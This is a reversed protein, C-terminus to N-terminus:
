YLGLQEDLEGGGAAAIRELESQRRQQRRAPLSHFLSSPDSSAGGAQGAQKRQVGPQEEQDQAADDKPQANPPALPNSPGVQRKSTPVVQPRQQQQHQPQPQPQQQHQQHQHQHQQHQPQQQPQQPQPQQQQQHQQQQRSTSSKKEDTQDIRQRLDQLARDMAFSMRRVLGQEGKSKRRKGAGSKELKASALKASAQAEAASAGVPPVPSSMLENGGQVAGQQNQREQERLLQLRRKSEAHRAQLRRRKKEADPDVAAVAVAEASGQGASERRSGGGVGSGVGGEGGGGAGEGGGGSGSDGAGGGGSGSVSVGAGWEGSWEGSGGPTSSVPVVKSPRKGYAGIGGATVGIGENQTSDSHEWLAVGGQEDHGQKGHRHVSDGPSRGFNQEGGEVAPHPYVDGNGGMYVQADGVGGGYRMYFCLDVVAFFAKACFLLASWLSLIRLAATASLVPIIGASGEEKKSKWHAAETGGGGCACCAQSADIGDADAWDKFTGQKGNIYGRWNSGYSGNECWKWLEYDECTHLTSSAWSQPTNVCTEMMLNKTRFGLVLGDAAGEVASNQIMGLMSFVALSAFCVFVATIKKYGCKAWLVSCGIFFLSAIGVDGISAVPILPKELLTGGAKWVLLGVFPLACAAEILHSLIRLLLRFALFYDKAWYAYDEQEMEECSRIHLGTWKEQMRGWYMATGVTVDFIFQLSHKSRELALFADAYQALPLLLLYVVLYTQYPKPLQNLGRDAIFRNGTDHATDADLFNNILIDTLWCCLIWKGLYLPAIILLKIAEVFSTDVLDDDSAAADKKQEAKKKNGVTVRKIAAEPPFKAKSASKAAQATRFLVVATKGTKSIAAVKKIDGFRQFLVRLAPKDYHKRSPDLKIKIAKPNDLLEAADRQTKKAAILQSSAVASLM